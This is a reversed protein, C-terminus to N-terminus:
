EGIIGSEELLDRKLKSLPRELYREEEWETGYLIRYVDTRTLGRRNTLHLRNMLDNIYGQPYADNFLMIDKVELDGHMSYIDELHMDRITNDIKSGKKRDIKVEWERYPSAKVCAKFKFESDDPNMEVVYPHIHTKLSMEKSSKISSNCIKCCPILNYLSLSLLPFRSKAFWHDFDARVLPHGAYETEITFTYQRNCYPCTNRGIKRSIWYAPGKNKTIIGEYNFIKELLEPNPRSAEDLEAFKRMIITNLKELRAPESVLLAEPLIYDSQWGRNGSVRRLLINKAEQELEYSTGAIVRGNKINAILKPLVHAAYTKLVGADIKDLRFM